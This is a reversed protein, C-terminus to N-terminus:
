RCRFLYQRMISCGFILCIKCIGGTLMTAVNPTYNTVPEVIIRAYNMYEAHPLSLAEKLTDMKGFDCTGIWCRVESNWLEKATPLNPWSSKIAEDSLAVKVNLRM